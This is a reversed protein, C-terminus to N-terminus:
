YISILCLVYIFMFLYMLTRGKSLVVIDKGFTSSFTTNKLQMSLFHSVMFGVYSEPDFHYFDMMASRMFTLVYCAEDNEEIQCTFLVRYHYPPLTLSLYKNWSSKSGRFGHSVYKPIRM